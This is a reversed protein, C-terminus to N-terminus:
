IVCWNVLGVCAMAQKPRHSVRSFARSKMMVNARSVGSQELARINMAMVHAAVAVAGHPASVNRWDARCFWTGRGTGANALALGGFLGAVM